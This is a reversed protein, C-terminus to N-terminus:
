PRISCSPPPPAISRTSVSAPSSSSAGLCRPPMLPPSWQSHLSDFPAAIDNECDRPAMPLLGHNSSLVECKLTGLYDVQEALRRDTDRMMTPSFGVTCVVDSVGLRLMEASLSAASTAGDDALDLGPLLLVGSPLKQAGKSKSSRVGAIPEFRGGSAALQEVVLRGTRGSAGVVLVRQM